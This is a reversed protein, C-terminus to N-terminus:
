YGNNEKKKHDHLKKLAEIHQALEEHGMEHPSKDMEGEMSEHEGIDEGKDGDEDHFDHPDDQENGFDGEDAVDDEDMSHLPGKEVLNAAQALGHELGQKDPAAVTVKKIGNVKDAGLDDMDSMLHELVSKKADMEPKSMTQGQAKKKAIIKALNDM